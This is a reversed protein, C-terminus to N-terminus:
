ERRKKSKTFIVIICYNNNSQFNKQNKGKQMSFGNDMTKREKVAKKEENNRHKFYVAKLLM